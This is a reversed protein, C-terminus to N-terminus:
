FPNLFLFTLVGSVFAVYYLLVASFTAQNQEFIM